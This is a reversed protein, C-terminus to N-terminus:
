TRANPNLVCFLHTDHNKNHYGLQSHVRGNLNSIFWFWSKYLYLGKILNSM